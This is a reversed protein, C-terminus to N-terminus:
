PKSSRGNAVGEKDNLIRAREKKTYKRWWTEPHRLIYKMEDASHYGGFKRALRLWEEQTFTTTNSKTQLRLRPNAAFYIENSIVPLEILKTTHKGRNCDMCASIYNEIM